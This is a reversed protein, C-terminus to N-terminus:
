AGSGTEFVTFRFCIKKNAAIIIDIKSPFYNPIIIAIPTNKIPVKTKTCFMFHVLDAIKLKAVMATISKI